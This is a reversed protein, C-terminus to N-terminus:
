VDDRRKCLVYRKPSQETGTKLHFRILQAWYTSSTQRRVLFYLERVFGKSESRPVM